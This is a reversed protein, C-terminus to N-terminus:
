EWIVVQQDEHWEGLRNGYIEDVEGRKIKMSPTLIKNDVSWEEKVIIITSIKQYNPLQQNINSLEKELSTVVARKNKQKGSESLNVLAVPQPIGLGAVCIQEILESEFYDELVSPVIYKGKTTKFADKVRGIVKVFGKETIMGKDGSYLWDDKLVEATKQPEKYYGKMMWPCQMLIEGTKADIKFKANSIPKGVTGSEDDNKPTYTTGGLVETMGYMERLRIGLKRFWAKKNEPTISGGTTFAKVRNLGLGKKIKKKVIGSIIPIKLLTDLKKQPMKVLVGSQFKTWIRPVAGFFTPQTDQLNQAFTDLTDAFATTSGKMLGFLQTYVRDGVHNFPLFSLGIIKPNSAFSFDDNLYENRMVLAANRFDHVVGKPTGTTGSTFLITWFDTLDPLPTGQMPENEQLLTAWDLGEKIGVGTQYKPFKIIPMDAPVVKKRDAWEDLKGVFLAKADSKKLVVEFDSAGLNYYFPVSVLGAMMIALDALHLHYCNKSLTAVHDGKKLGLGKLATAIRRAEAGAQQWTIAIWKGGEPQRLYIANPTTKEWHYFYELQTKLDQFLENQM